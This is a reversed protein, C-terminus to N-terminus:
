LASVLKFIGIKDLVRHLGVRLDANSYHSMDFGYLEETAYSGILNVARRPLRKSLVTMAEIPPRLMLQCGNIIVSVDSPQLVIRTGRCRRLKPLEM